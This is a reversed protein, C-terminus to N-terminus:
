EPPKREHRAVLLSLGIAIFGLLAAYTFFAAYGAALATPQVGTSAVADAFSRPPLNGFLETLPSLWGGDAAHAATEVIQGSQSALIGGPLRFLSSFLAYQMATFGLSTLSSMYAILCTGAFGASVSNIGVVLFLGPMYPGHMTLWFLGANSVPGALAGILLAPMLGFRAVALGGLFLGLMSGAVAYASRVQALDTLTFGLDLYFPNLVSLVLQSVRYFSILALMLAALGRYRHFFDKLPEGFAASLYVGPRTRRRGFPKAAFVFLALGLVITAIRFAAIMLPSEGSLAFELISFGGATGSLGIGASLIGLILVALRALWELGERFPAARMDETPIARLQHQMERPARLVAGIGSAMIAAMVLYSIHWSFFEAIIYPFSGAVILSTYYGWQYVAAMAGQRSKETVEIERLWASLTDFILVLPLGSFFGFVLMALAHRNTYAALATTLNRKGTAAPKDSNVM